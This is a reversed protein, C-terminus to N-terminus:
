REVAQFFKKFQIDKMVHGKIVNEKQANMHKLFLLSLYLM